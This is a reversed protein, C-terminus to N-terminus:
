YWRPRYALTIETSTTIENQGPVLKFPKLLWADNILDLRSEGGVIVQPDNEDNVVKIVGTTGSIEITQGTQLNSVTLGEVSGTTTIIPSTSATGAVDITQTGIVTENIKAGQWFPDLAIFQISIKNIERGRNLWEHPIGVTYAKLYRENSKDRYVDIPTKTLFEFLDDLYSILQKKNKMYISGNLTFRRPPMTAVGTKIGGNTGAFTYVSTFIELPIKQFSITLPLAIEAGLANILKVM